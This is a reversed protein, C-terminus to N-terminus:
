KNKLPRKGLIERSADYGEIRFHGGIKKTPRVKGVYQLFRKNIIHPETEVVGYYFSWFHGEKTDLIIAGNEGVSVIQYRGVKSDESMAPSIILLSFLIFSGIFLIRMIDEKRDRFNSSQLFV